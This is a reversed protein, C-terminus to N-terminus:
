EGYFGQISIICTDSFQILIHKHDWYSLISSVSHGNQFHCSFLGNLTFLIMQLNHISIPQCSAFQWDRFFSVIHIQHWQPQSHDATICISLPNLQHSKLTLVINQTAKCDFKADRIVPVSLLLNHFCRTLSMTALTTNVRNAGGVM